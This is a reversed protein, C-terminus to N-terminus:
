SAEGTAAKERRRRNQCTGETPAAVISDQCARGAINRAIRMLHDEVAERTEVTYNKRKMPGRLIMDADLTPNYDIIKAM